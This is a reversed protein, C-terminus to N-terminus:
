KPLKKWLYLIACLGGSLDFFIDHTIDLINFPNQALINYFLIEYLEWLIGIILVGLFIRCILKLNIELSSNKYSLLWILFLGVCFGGLFHMPMDSWWISYYWYFKLALYSAVFLLFTFYALTKFLKKRDIINDM